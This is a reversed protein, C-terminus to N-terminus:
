RAGRQTQAPRRSGPGFGQDESVQAAQRPVERRRGVECRGAPDLAQRRGASATRAM